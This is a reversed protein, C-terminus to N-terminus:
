FAPVLHRKCTSLKFGRLCLFSGNVDPATDASEGFFWLDARLKVVWDFRMQHSLEYETMLEFARRLKEWTEWWVRWTPKTHPGAYPALLETSMRCLTPPKKLVDKFPGYYIHKLHLAAIATRVRTINSHVSARHGKSSGEDDDTLYAFTFAYTGFSAIANILARQALPEVLTRLQGTILFAASRTGNTCAKHNPSFSPNADQEVADCCFM